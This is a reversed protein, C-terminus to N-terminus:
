AGRVRRRLRWAAVAIGTLTLALTGPEPVMVAYYGEITDIEDLHNPTASFNYTGPDVYNAGPLSGPPILGADGAGLRPSGSVEDLDGPYDGLEEYNTQQAYGPGSDFTDSQGYNHTTYVAFRVETTPQSSYGLMTWPIRIEFEGANNNHTDYSASANIGANWAFPNSGGQGEGAVVSGNTTAYVTAWGGGGGGNDVYQVGVIHTPTWGLFDVARVGEGSFGPHGNAATLYGSAAGGSADIAIFLDGQDGNGGTGPDSFSNFPITPGTVGLYLYTSDYAVYTNIIDARNDVWGKSVNLIGDWTNYSATEGIADSSGSNGGTLPASYINEALFTYGDGGNISGDLTPAAWAAGCVVFFVGCWIFRAIM